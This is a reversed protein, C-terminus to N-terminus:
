IFYIIGSFPEFYSIPAIQWIGIISNTAYFSGEVSKFNGYPYGELGYEGSFGAQQPLLPVIDDGVAYQAYTTTNVLNNFVVRYTGVSPLTFSLVL